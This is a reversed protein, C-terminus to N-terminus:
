NNGHMGKGRQTEEDVNYKKMSTIGVERTRRSGLGQVAHLTNKETGEMNTM